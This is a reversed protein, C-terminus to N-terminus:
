RARETTLGCLAGVTIPTQPAPVIPAPMAWSAQWAPARVSSCSGSGSASFRPRAPISRCRSRPTSRPRMLRDLAFQIQASRQEGM